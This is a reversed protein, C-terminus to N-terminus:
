HIDSMAAETAFPNQGPAEAFVWVGHFATRLEPYAAVLASMAAANRKNATAVDGIQDVKLRVAVDIKEKGLSDDVGLNTFHFEQGGASKVVLPSQVSVGESLQPPAAATQEGRLKEWHTSQVLRAPRLLEEAEQYYLWANWHQNNAAMARAQRWYWLGDHGAAWMATPYFGAMAWKGQVQKLLFSLRWPSTANQVEAIAFAYKGADLGPISFDAEAPSKNLSCFFQSEPLSGDAGRKADSDDLLYVQEVAISGGKLKPAVGSVIGGLGGFDKAYEPVLAAQLGSVNGDQVMSALERARAALADRDAAAMQSQTTCVDAPAVGAALFLLALLAVVVRMMKGMMCSNDSESSRRMYAHPLDMLALPCDIATSFGDHAFDNDSKVWDCKM